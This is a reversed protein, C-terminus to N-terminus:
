ALFMLDWFVRKKPNRKSEDPIITTLRMLDRAGLVCTTQIGQYRSIRELEM